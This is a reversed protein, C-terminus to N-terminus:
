HEVTVPHTRPYVRYILDSNNYRNASTELDTYYHGYPGYEIITIWNMAINRKAVTDDLYICIISAM